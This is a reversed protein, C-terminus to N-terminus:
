EKTSITILSCRLNSNLHSFFRSIRATEIERSYSMSIADEAFKKGVRGSGVWGM